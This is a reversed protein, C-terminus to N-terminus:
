KEFPLPGEATSEAMGWGVKLMGQEGRRAKAALLCWSVQSMLAVQQMNETSLKGTHECAHTMVLFWETLM